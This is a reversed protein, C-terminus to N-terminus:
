SNFKKFSGLELIEHNEHDCPKRILGPQSMNKGNTNKKEDKLM